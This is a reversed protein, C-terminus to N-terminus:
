TDTAEHGLTPPPPLPPHTPQGWNRSNKTLHCRQSGPHPYPNKPGAHLSPKTISAECAFSKLSQTYDSHLVALQQVTSPGGIPAM